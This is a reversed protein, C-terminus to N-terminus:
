FSFTGANEVVQTCPGFYKSMALDLKEVNRRADVFVNKYAEIQARLVDINM